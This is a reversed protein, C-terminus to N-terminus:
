KSNNFGRAQRGISRMLSPGQELFLRQVSKADVANITVAGGTGGGEGKGLVKDRVGQALPAPMVMEDKHIQTMTNGPVQWWGGEASSINKAFGLVAVGAAIAMAPALFPGVYPIGAIASYVSAAAEWAAIAIRKLAVGVTILLSEEGATEEATTRLATGELAAATQVAQGTVFQEAMWDVAKGVADAGKRAMEGLGTGGGMLKEAFKQAILHQFAVAIDLGMKKFATSIKMTGSMLGEIATAFSDKVAHSGDLAFQGRLKEAERALATQKNQSQAYLAVREAEIQANQQEDGLALEQRAALGRLAVDLLQAEAQKRLEIEQQASIEDMARKQAILNQFDAIQIESVQQASKAAIGSLADARKREAEQYAAENARVAGIRKQELEAIDGLAKIEQAQYQARQAATTGVQKGATVAAQYERAKADISADIGRLEIVQKAAYFEKASILNQAYQEAYIAQAERLYEQTLQMAADEGAKQISAKAAFAQQMDAVSTFSKDGGKSQNGAPTAPKDAVPAVAKTEVKKREVNGTLVTELDKAGKSAIKVAEKMGDALVRNQAEVGAQWASKVGGWDLSFAAKSVAGFAKMGEVLYALSTRIGLAFLEFAIRFGVAAAQAIRLVNLFIDFAGPIETGMTSSFASGLWALLDVAARVVTVLVEFTAEFLPAVAAYAEVIIAGTVRAVQGIMELAVALVAIGDPEGFASSLIDRIRQATPGMVALIGDFTATIADIVQGAADGVMEFATVVYGLATRFAAAGTLVEGGGWIAGLKLAVKEIGGFIAGMARSVVGGIIEFVAVFATVMPKLAAIISPGFKALTEAMRTFMPIVATGVTVQMGKLVDQVDNMAEKYKKTAAIGENTIVLGLDRNKQAAEALKANTEALSGGFLKQLKMAEETGRGFLRMAAQQQDIGPKYKGLTRIADEFVETSSKTGNKVADVDVGMARLEDSNSRIARNFKTFSAAYVDASVGVDDLATVLTGAAEGTINLTKSLKVAEANAENTSDIFSKFAAGGAVVAALGVFAKTLSGFIGQVESMKSKLDDIVAGFVVTVDEGTGQGM